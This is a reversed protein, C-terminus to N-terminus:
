PAPLYTSKVLVVDSKKKESLAVGQFFLGKMNIFVKTSFIEATVCSLFNFSSSFLCIHSKVSM